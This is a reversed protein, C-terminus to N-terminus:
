NTDNVTIQFAKHIFKPKTWDTHGVKHDQDVGLWVKDITKSDSCIICFMLASVM